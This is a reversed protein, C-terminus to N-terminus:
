FSLRAGISFTHATAKYTGGFSKVPNEGMLQSIMDVYQASDTRSGEIPSVYGYALDIAFCEAPKFTLGATYALKSMSPTEPSLMGEKVPSEDFYIGARVSMWNLAHWQAGLRAAFSNKYDKKAIVDNTLEKEGAPTVLYMRLENYSSWLNYQLDAAVEWKATPRFSAGLTVVGPTPLETRITSAALVQPSLGTKEALMAEVIPALQANPIYTLSAAGEEVKMKISHRYTAGLSWKESIDWFAGVNFGVGIKADGGLTISALPNNGIMQALGPKGSMQEIFANTMGGVGLLSKSMEFNGWTVMLGAGISFNKALRFSVTPQLNFQKLSITQCMHAGAWGEGWDLSSGHPTNFAVGFAFWDVPKYSAYFHLPTSLKNDTTTAYDGSTFDVTSAIGTVGVSLDFQMSQMAVAAPNFWLSESGLKMATGTQAMGNQRSSFNNVQYGEASATFSVMVAAALLM